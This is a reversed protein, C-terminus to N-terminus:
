RPEMKELEAFYVQDLLNDCSDNIYTGFFTDLSLADVVNNLHLLLRRSTAEVKLLDSNASDNGVTPLVLSLYERLLKRLFHVNFSDDEEIELQFATDAAIM